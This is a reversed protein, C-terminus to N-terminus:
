GRPPRVGHTAAWVAVAAAASWAQPFCAAPYPVPRSSAARADGGHLEPMRHDFAPAAALLGDALQAAEAAFGARALGVVAIATDHTWVSGCHYSLPWFGAADAALTRLGYGDALVPSFLRRAVLREEEADLLGTGLLHGINSSLADVPRKAADLAIAPYRGEADSVWFRSRFREALAAAWERAAAAGPRGFRDLLDAGHVAAEHAYAQVECLAIPGRALRGARDQVSDASDKWGQNALGHGSEDVYELLQDGDADGHERLWTLAAELAPLLAQVQEEPLGWRWADHLLCVWLATADVTGYYLPPLRLGEAAVTLTQQRLEHMIKGPQEATAPDSRTGQLGALVRLTGGALELDTDLPLLFRATWLSDRGFLTLFWPAGAAVFVDDSGPRRLRLAEVDALARDLWRALRDDGPAPEPRAFRAPRGPGVVVAGPSDAHVEMGVEVQGGAPVTVEWRATVTDVELDVRAGEARLSVAIGASRWRAADGGVEVDTADPGPAGVRIQDMSTADPVVSLEVVVEVPRRLRSVLRVREAFGDEAVERGVQVRVDPGGGEGLTRLVGEFRIGSAGTPVAAVAEPPLGDVRLWLARLYRTDGLYAGHVTARGAEGSRGSWVQAPARLVVLEDHLLPQLPRSM